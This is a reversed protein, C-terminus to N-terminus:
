RHGSNNQEENKSQKKVEEERTPTTDVEILIKPLADTLYNPKKQHYM